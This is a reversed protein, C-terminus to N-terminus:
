RGVHDLALQRHMKDGIVEHATNHL